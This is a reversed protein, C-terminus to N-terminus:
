YLIDCIVQIALDEYDPFKGHEEIQLFAEGGNGAISYTSGNRKVEVIIQYETPLAEMKLMPVTVKASSGGPFNLTKVAYKDTKEFLDVQPLQDLETRSLYSSPYRESNEGYMGQIFFSCYLGPFRKPQWSRFQTAPSQAQASAMLFLGLGSVLLLARVTKM